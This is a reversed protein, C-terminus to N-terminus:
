LTVRRTQTSHFRMIWSQIVMVTTTKMVTKTPTVQHLHPSKPQLLEKYLVPVLVPVPVPLTMMKRKMVIIMIRVTIMKMSMKMKMKMMKMKRRKEKGTLLHFLFHIIPKIKMLSKFSYVTVASIFAAGWFHTIGFSFASNHRNEKPIVFKQPAAKIEATVTRLM